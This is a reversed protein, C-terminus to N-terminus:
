AAFENCTAEYDYQEETKDDAENMTEEDENDKIDVYVGKKELEEEIKADLVDDDDDSEKMDPNLLLTYYKDNVATSGLMNVAEAISSAFRDAEKQESAESLTAKFKPIEVDLGHKIYSKFRSLMANFM